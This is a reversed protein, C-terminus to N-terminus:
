PASSRTRNVLTDRIGAARLLQRIVDAEAPGAFSGVFIRYLPASDAAVGTVVYAPIDLNRLEALQENAGERTSYDGILLALPAYRVDTPTAARKLRRTLLTDRMALAASSDALPGAMVHYYLVGDRELPAIYFALDSQAATLADLREFATALNQHAEMAVAYPMVDAPPETLGIDPQTPVPRQLSAPTPPTVNEAVPVRRNVLFHWTGAFLSLMLVVGITWALPHNFRRRGTPTPTRTPDITELAVDDPATEVRMERAVEGSVALLSVPAAQEAGAPTRAAAEREAHPDLRAARQRSRMDAILAERSQQDTPLRIREFEEDTLRPIEAPAAHQLEAPAAAREPAAPALVGLVAYPHPLQAVIAAADGSGLVLVAGASAVVGGLAASEAPTYLLLTERRAATERLLRPWPAANLLEEAAGVLTGAPLLDFSADSVRVAARHLSTGYEVVDVFGEDNSVAAIEHLSPRDLDLDALVTHRPGPWRRALSVAALAAWGSNRAEVGAVLVVATLAAAPGNLLADLEPLEAGDAPDFPVTEPLLGLTLRTFTRTSRFSPLYGRARM